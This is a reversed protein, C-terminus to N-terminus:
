SYSSATHPVYTTQPPTDFTTVRVCSRPRWSHPADQPVELHLTISRVLITISLLFQCKTYSVRSSKDEILNGWNSRPSTCYTVISSLKSEKGVDNDTIKIWIVRM